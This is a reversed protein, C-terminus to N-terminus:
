HKDKPLWYEKVYCIADHVNHLQAGHDYGSVYYSGDNGRDWDMGSLKCILDLEEEKKNSPTPTFVISDEKNNKRLM